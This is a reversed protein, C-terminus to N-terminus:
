GSAVKAAGAGEWGKPVSWYPRSTSARTSTPPRAASAIESVAESAATAIPPIRPMQIPYRRPRDSSSPIRSTSAAWDTGPSRSNRATAVTIPLPAGTSSAASVKTLTGPVALTARAAM